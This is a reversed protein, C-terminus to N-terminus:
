AAPSSAPLPAPHPDIYLAKLLFFVTLLSDVLIGIAFLTMVGEFAPQWAGSIYLLFGM